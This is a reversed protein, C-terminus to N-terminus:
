GAEGDITKHTVVHAALLLLAVLSGATVAHAVHTMKLKCRNEPFEIVTLTRRLGHRRASATPNSGVSPQGDGTKLVPAKLREAV